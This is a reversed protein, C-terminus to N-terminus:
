LSGPWIVIRWFHDEWDACNERFSHYDGPDDLTKSALTEVMDIMALYAAMIEGDVADIMREESVTSIACLYEWSNAHENTLRSYAKWMASIGQKEALRLVQRVEAEIEPNM